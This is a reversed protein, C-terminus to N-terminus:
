NYYEDVIILGAAGTGGTTTNSTGAGGAGVGYSYSAAPPAIVAEICAGSNGGAGSNAAAGAGGGGGGAGTNTAGNQGNGNGVGGAGAGGFFASGGGPPGGFTVAASSNLGAGTGAAGPFATVTGNTITTGSATASSGPGTTTTGAGGDATLTGFTTNGGATSTGAAAGGTGGSGAGVMRVVIRTCGSPTTYTGSGSTFKQRTPQKGITMDIDAVTVVRTTATTLGDVEFRVKKTSDASGQVVPHTDLFPANFGRAIVHFQTGDYEITVPISARLEGGVCAAGNWFISKAGLSTINITTAGTNTNAPTFNHREGAYYADLGTCTATITNTGAVSSLTELTAKVTAQLQRLDAGITASDAQDPQNSAATSSWSGFSATINAM